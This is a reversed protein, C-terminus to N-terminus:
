DRKTIQDNEITLRKDALKEVQVLGENPMVALLTISGKEKGTKSISVLKKVLNLNDKDIGSISTLDDVAIVVDEGIELIRKAREMALSVLRRVLDVDDTLNAVFNECNQLKSLFIKNKEALSINLYIKNQIQCHMLADIIIKTNCNNNSGYLYVNEGFKLNLYSYEKDFKLSKNLWCHEVDEFKLRRTLHQVPCDNVSFIKKVVKQNDDVCVEGVVRDGMRLDILGVVNKPVFYYENKLDKNVWLIASNNNVLEVWGAVTVMDEDQSDEVSQNFVMSSGHQFDADFVHAFDYGFVKPPRGQKTKSIEPQKEGSMIELIGKILEDKKKSTPSNVGTRRALDRLAFINLENLKKEMVDVWMNEVNRQKINVYNRCFTFSKTFFAM